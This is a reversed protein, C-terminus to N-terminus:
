PWESQIVHKAMESFSPAMKLPDLLMLVHSILVSASMAVKSPWELGIVHKAMESFSPAGFFLKEFCLALSLHNQLRQLM